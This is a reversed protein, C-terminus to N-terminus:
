EKPKKEKGQKAAGAREAEAKAEVPVEAGAPYYEGGYKVMTKFKM